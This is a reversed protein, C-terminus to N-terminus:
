RRRAIAVAIEDIREKDRLLRMKAEEFRRAREEPDEVVKRERANKVYHGLSWKLPARALLEDLSPEHAPKPYSRSLPDLPAEVGTTM